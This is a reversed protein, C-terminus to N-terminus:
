PNQVIKVTPQGPEELLYAAVFRAPTDGVNDFRAVHVGAPEYFADGAKLFTTPEGEIQYAIRGEIVVGIVPCPHLHLPAKQGTAMTVDQVSVSGVAKPPALAAELLNRRQVAGPSAMPGGQANLHPIALLTVLMPIQFKLM